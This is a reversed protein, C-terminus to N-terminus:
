APCKMEKGPESLRPQDQEGASSWRGKVVCGIELAPLLCAALTVLLLLAAIMAYTLPDAASIGFLFNSIFRTLALGVALGILIGPMTIKLGHTIVLPIIQARHAGLAMRIGIEQKRQAVSYALVGYFHIRQARTLICHV